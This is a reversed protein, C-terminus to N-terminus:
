AVLFSDTSELSSFCAMASSALFCALSSIRLSSRSSLEELSLSYCGCFVPAPLGKKMDISMPFHTEQNKLLWLSFTRQWAVKGRSTGELNIPTARSM